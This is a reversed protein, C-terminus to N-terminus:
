SSLFRVLVAELRIPLLASGGFTPAQQEAELSNAGWRFVTDNDKEITIFLAMSQLRNIPM